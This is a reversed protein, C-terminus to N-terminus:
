QLYKRVPSDKPALRLMEQKFAMAPSQFLALWAVTGGSGPYLRL